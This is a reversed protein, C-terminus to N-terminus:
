TSQATVVGTDSSFVRLWVRSSKTVPGAVGDELQGLGPSPCAWPCKNQGTVSRPRLEWTQKPTQVQKCYGLSVGPSTAEPSVTVIGTGKERLRGRRGAQRIKGEGQSAPHRKSPPPCYLHRLPPATEKSLSGPGWPSQESGAPVYPPRLPYSM